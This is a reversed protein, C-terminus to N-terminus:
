VENLENENIEFKLWLSHWLQYVINLVSSKLIYFSRLTLDIFYFNIIYLVLLKGMKTIGVTIFKWLWLMLKQKQLLRTIEVLVRGGGREREREQM